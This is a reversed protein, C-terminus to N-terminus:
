RWVGRDVAVFFATILELYQECYARAEHARGTADVYHFVNEDAIPLSLRGARIVRAPREADGSGVALGMSPKPTHRFGAQGSRHVVEHREGALPHALVAKVEPATDYWADFRRRQAVQGPSFGM